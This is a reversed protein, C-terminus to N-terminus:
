PGHIAMSDIDVDLVLCTWHSLLVYIRCYSVHDLCSCRFHSFIAFNTIAFFNMLEENMISHFDGHDLSDRLSDMVQSEWVHYPIGEMRALFGKLFGNFARVVSASAGPAVVWLVWVGPYFPEVFRSAM